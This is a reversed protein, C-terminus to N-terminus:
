ETRLSKAPNSMAAKIGHFSVTIVAVVIAMVGGLAFMWWSLEIRYDFNRLLKQMAFGALPAALAFAIVVPMLFDKSLSFWLRLMSAGLIKRVGIEKTRREAIYASLGFLGLCSILIALGGIGNILRATSRMGAFKEQYAAKTFHYEFTNEPINRKVLQEVSAMSKQWNDTNELRIFLHNLQGPKLYVVLPGPASAPNGSVFDDIVGVVTTGGIKTGLIPEKLGMKRVAARNLLCGTTDTTFEPSFDRGDIIKIGATKTWDYDVYTVTVLFNQDATKGPWSLDNVAGGFRILDDSGASVSKIGPIQRLENKLAMFKQAAGAQVPIEVLNEQDYGIPRSQVHQQQRIFVITAIVLFISIVFQFTVLSKRLLSVGRGPAVINKLVKVPQFASLFIAPYSGAALGTFLGLALVGAWLKYDLFNVAIGDRLFPNLVSLAAQGLIVGLILSFFTILLTECLFQVIIDNRTSGMVKRVGVERARSMATATALNMFNICAILLIFMGIVGLVIMGDILGGNPKGNKFGDRLHLEALPYAFLEAKDEGHQRLIPRLKQNVAELNAGPKLAVWTLLQNNDWKDIWTSNEREFLSFPLAVDFRVTSNPPLDGIVASVKLAHQYNLTVIKGIPNESGFFKRATRETIVVSGPESLATVPNGKVAPFSMFRFFDADVYLGNEYISKDGYQLLQQGPAGVRAVHAVEPIEGRLTAALPGPTSQGTNIVGGNDQNKMLLHIQPLNAHFADYGLENKIWFLVLVAAALGVALGFVNITSSMKNKVLTRWAIKFYNRIM